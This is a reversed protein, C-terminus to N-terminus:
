KGKRGRRSAGQQKNHKKQGQKTSEKANDQVERLIYYSRNFAGVSLFGIYYYTCIARYLRECLRVNGLKAAHRFLLLDGAVKSRQRSTDLTTKM